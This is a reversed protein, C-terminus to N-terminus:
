LGVRLPCFSGPRQPRGPPYPLLEEDPEEDPMLCAEPWVKGVGGGNRVATSNKTLPDLAEAVGGGLLLDALQAGGDHRRGLDQQDFAGALAAQGGLHSAQEEPGRAPQALDALAAGAVGGRLGLQHTGVQESGLQLAVQRRDAAKGVAVAGIGAEDARHDGIRLVAPVPRQAAQVLHQQALDGIGIRHNRDPPQGVLLVGM